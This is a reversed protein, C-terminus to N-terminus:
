SSTTNVGNSEPQPQLYFDIKVCLQTAYCVLYFDPIRSFWYEIWFPFYTIYAFIGITLAAFAPKKASADRYRM